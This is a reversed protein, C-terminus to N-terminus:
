IGLLEDLQLNPLDEPIVSRQITVKDSEQQTTIDVAIAEVLIELCGLPINLETIVEKSGLYNPLLNTLWHPGDLLWRTQYDKIWLKVAIQPSVDPLEVRIKLCKGSILEGKPIHLKPVPITDIIADMLLRASLLQESETADVTEAQPQTLTDDIVIERALWAPPTKAFPPPPPPPPLQLKSPTKAPPALEEPTEDISIDMQQSQVHDNQDQVNEHLFYGQNQMWKEILPSVQSVSTTTFNTSHPLVIEAFSDDSFQVENTVVEPIPENYLVLEEVYDNQPQLEDDSQPLAQLRRLYPLYTSTVEKYEGSEIENSNHKDFRPLQLQPTRSSKRSAQSRSHITPPLKRVPTNFTLPQQNKATKALNFLELDIPVASEKPLTPVIHQSEELDQITKSIAESVVLLETLDATITFSQSALLAVEGIGDLAGYLNISALILKSSCDAPVELVSTFTFPLLKESLQQKQQTFIETPTIPSRMEIRVEAASISATDSTEELEVRGNISLTSGWRTVYTDADLTLLLPPTVVEKSDVSTTEEQLTSAPLALEILNYLIQETTEGKVWMPTIPADIIVDELPPSPLTHQSIKYDDQTSTIIEAKVTIPEDQANDVQNETHKETPLEVSDLQPINEVEIPLVQLCFNYQWAKGLFDSMLDGSCQVEWIGPQFNTFPIVAMLGEANTRRSRKQIRRRSPVDVSSYTVRVEVDTNARNLRAVIRYRGELLQTNPSELPRWSRDGIKQILFQGHEM